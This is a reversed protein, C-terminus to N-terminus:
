RKLKRQEISLQPSGPKSITISDVWQKQHPELLELGKTKLSAKWGFISNLVPESVGSERLEQCVGNVGKQELEHRVTFVAKLDYGQALPIRVTGTRLEGEKFNFQGTLLADRYVREQEQWHVRQRQAADWNEILQGLEM